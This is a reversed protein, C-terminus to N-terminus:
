MKFDFIYNEINFFMVHKRCIDCKVISDSSCPQPTFDLYNGILLNRCITWNECFDLLAYLLKKKALKQDRNLKDIFNLKFIFLLKFFFQQKLSVM